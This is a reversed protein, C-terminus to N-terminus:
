GPRAAAQEAPLIRTPPDRRHRGHPRGPRQAHEARCERFASPEAVLNTRQHPDSALDYLFDERYTDSAGHDWGNLGPARAAYTWRPTRLARGVQSESIQLFVEDSWPAGSVARQLAAGRMTAPVPAGGATLLTPPLDILSAM